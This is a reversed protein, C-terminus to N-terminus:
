SHVHTIELDESFLDLVVTSPRSLVVFPEQSFSAVVAARFMAFGPAIFDLEHLRSKAVLKRSPFNQFQRAARTEPGAVQRLLM